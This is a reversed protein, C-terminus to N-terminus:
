FYENTVFTTKVHKGIKGCRRRIRAIGCPLDKTNFSTSKSHGQSTTNPTPSVIAALEQLVTKDTFLNTRLFRNPPPIPTQMREKRTDLSGTDQTKDLIHDTHDDNYDDDNDDDKMDDKKEKENEIVGAKYFFYQLLCSSLLGYVESQPSAESNAEGERDMVEVPEDIMHLKDDLQIEYIPVVVDDEALCKMDGDKFELPKLRKNAYNKQRSVGAYLHDASEETGLKMHHMRLAQTIVITIHSSSWHYIAIRFLPKIREKQSLSEAVVNAKGPHYQIECVYDSLLEIWRRQKLNLEKQNLIYQPSEYDTFVMCKTGYLYHRWLRLAFVVAGLELDHTTYNKEHVKLQRSAYAIVKERPMLVAGYGETPTMSAAWSKIAEIKTPDVHVGFREKKLFVLIIKLHKENEEEDQFEFHGYRTRFATIPIDEEKIHLHHYRNKVTLKNLERYDICMRFSGDKKKVFLVLARWSSSSLRIFGKELLEQLQVSLEKIESPALRFPARAVPAVGVLAKICSIVKLRSVGKDSKVILMRRDALEVVYSAEIKIPDIDLMASFRTDVFSEGCDYCTWVPQANAGTAVSKEKYYRAKHRFKGCKHCKITCQSVHRTFCRECLPFKGDTPATVMARANGQKKSNQLAQCSSDRQNGKGSSNGGQLSEWKQKKGELIRADRAQSKQEMLNNAMCVAENLDAPKSSTVEGKINDTLGRIYADVKVREPEVMLEHEMRQVEEIPCFELTMLQKMNTWPMQNVTELGMTAVKTKWWTLAPGELIAAAFKVKKGGGKVGRFVVPNCKMFGAFTRERVTPAADQAKVPGFGSADSKVNAQRVREAAIAVDVSDKASKPAMILNPPSGRSESVHSKEDEIPVNIAENPREEFVFGRAEKLEKKLKKCEVKDKTNGLKEVLKEMAAMGKEISSCVENGLELILKGYFKDKAKGKKEVLAHTTERGCLRRSISAMDHVSAPVTEDKHEILNEVKIGDDPESESAPPPPNLPDVDEYPYTLEPDEEPDEDEDVLVPEPVVPVDDHQNPEVVHVEDVHDPPIVNVM